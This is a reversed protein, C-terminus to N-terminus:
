DFECMGPYQKSLWDFYQKSAMSQHKIRLGFRWQVGCDHPCVIRTKPGAKDLEWTAIAHCEPCRHPKDRNPKVWRM